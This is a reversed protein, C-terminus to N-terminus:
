NVKGNPEEKLGLLKYIEKLSKLEKVRFWDNDIEIEDYFNGKAEDIQSFHDSTFLIGYRNVQFTKKCITGPIDWEDEPHRIGYMNIRGDNQLKDLWEADGSHEARFGAKFYYMEVIVGKFKAADTTVLVDYM